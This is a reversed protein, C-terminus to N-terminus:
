GRIRLASLLLLMLLTDVGLLVLAAKYLTAYGKSMLGPGFSLWIGQRYLSINSVILCALGAALLVLPIWPYHIVNLAIVVAVFGIAILVGLPDTDIQWLYRKGRRTRGYLWFSM